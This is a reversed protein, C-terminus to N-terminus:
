KFVAWVSIVIFKQKNEVMVCMFLDYHRQMAAINLNM